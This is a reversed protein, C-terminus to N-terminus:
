VNFYQRINSFNAFTTQMESKQKNLIKIMNQDCAKISTLYSSLSEKDIDAPCFPILESIAQLRRNLVSLCEEFQGLAIQNFALETLEDIIDILVSCNM